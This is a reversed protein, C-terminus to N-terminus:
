ISQKITKIADYNLIQYYGSEDRQACRKKDWKWDGLFVIRVELINLM